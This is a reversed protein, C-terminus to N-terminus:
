QGIVANKKLLVKHRKPIQAPTVSDWFLALLARPLHIPPWVWKTADSLPNIQTKKFNGWQIKKENNRPISFKAAWPRWVLFCLPAWTGMEGVGMAADAGDAGGDEGLVSSNHFTRMWSNKASILFFNPASL